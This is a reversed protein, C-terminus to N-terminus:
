KSSSPASASVTGATVTAEPPPEAPSWCYVSGNAVWGPEPAECLLVLGEVVVVAGGAAVDVAGAGAAVVVVGTVALLSGVVVVVGVAVVASEVGAM